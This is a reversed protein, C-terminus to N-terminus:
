SQEYGQAGTQIISRGNVLIRIELSARDSARAEYREHRLFQSRSM